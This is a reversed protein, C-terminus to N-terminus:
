FSLIGLVTMFFAVPTRFLSAGKVSVPMESALKSRLAKFEKTLERSKVTRGLRAQRSQHRLAAMDQKHFSILSDTGVM